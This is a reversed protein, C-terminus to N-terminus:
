SSGPGSPRLSAKRGKGRGPNSGYGYGYGYTFRGSFAPGHRLNTMVLGVVRAGVRSLVELTAELRKRDTGGESVAVLVGSAHPALVLADSVALAPPSDVVIVKYRGTHVLNNLFDRWHEALLEAPDEPAALCPLVELNPAVPHAHASYTFDKLSEVLDWGRAIGFERHIVPKRLDADVLLTPLDARAYARALSIAVSSKGEAKEPSTVLVVKPHKDALAHHVGTRLFAAAEAPLERRGNPPMRPFEGLVPLGSVRAAEESDRVVRVLAEQLLVLGFFLFPTIAAAAAAGLLPRPASPELPVQAQELSALLGVASEELARALDRDHALNGRLADLSRLRDPDKLQRAQRIETLIAELQAEVSRRYRTFHERARQDEWSRLAAAWANALRAARAPSHDRVRLTIVSSQRGEATRVKAAKRLRALAQPDGPEGALALAQRLVQTSLAAEKYAQADLPAVSVLPATFSGTSGAPGPQVAVLSSASEYVLPQQKLAFYTATASLLAAPLAWRIARLLLPILRELSIEQTGDSTYPTM